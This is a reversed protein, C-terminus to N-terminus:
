HLGLIWAIYEAKDMVIAETEDGTSTVRSLCFRTCGATHRVIFCPINMRNHIDAVLAKKSPWLEYERQANDIFLPPVEITEIYAVAVLKDGVKRQEFWDGDTQYCWEPLTRHWQSYNTPRKNTREEQPSM